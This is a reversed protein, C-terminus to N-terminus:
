EGISEDPEQNSRPRGTATWVVYDSDSADVVDSAFRVPPLGYLCGEIRTVDESADKM